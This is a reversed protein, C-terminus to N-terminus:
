AMVGTVRFLTGWFPCTCSRACAHAAKAEEVMLSAAEPVTIWKGTATPGALRIFCCRVQLAPVFSGGQAGWGIDCCAPIGLSSLQLASSARTMGM